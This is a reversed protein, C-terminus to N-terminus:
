NHPCLGFPACAARLWLPSDHNLFAHTPNHVPIAYDLEDAWSGALMHDDHFAQRNFRVVAVRERDHRDGRGDGAACAEFAPQERDGFVLISPALAPVALRPEEQRRDVQRVPLSSDLFRTSALTPISGAYVAKCAAAHGSQWRAKPPM